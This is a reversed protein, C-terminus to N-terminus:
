FAAMDDADVEWGNVRGSLWSAVWDVLWGAWFRFIIRGNQQFHLRGETNNNQTQNQNQQQQQEQAEKLTRKKGVLAWGKHGM